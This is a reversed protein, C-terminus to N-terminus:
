LFFFISIIKRVMTRAHRYNVGFFSADFKEIDYLKGVRRPIEPNTHRWRREDEDVMDIKNFLNYEFEAMNRSNPFRGSIGSIVVDDDRDIMDSM